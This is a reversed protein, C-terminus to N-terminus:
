NDLFHKSPTDLLCFLTNTDSIIGNLSTSEGCKLLKDTEFKKNAAIYLCDNRFPDYILSKCIKVVEADLYFTKNLTEFCDAKFVETKNELCISEADELPTANAIVSVLLLVIILFHKM